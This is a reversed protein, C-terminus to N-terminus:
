NIYMSLFLGIFPSRQEAPYVHFPESFSPINIYGLVKDYGFINQLSCFLVAQKHFMTFPKSISIDFSSYAPISLKTPLGSENLYNYFRPSAWSYSTSLLIGISPFWYKDVISITHTSVYDPTLFDGPIITKRKSDIYSYSIWYDLNPITTKDRFFIEFGGAYGAYGPYNGYPLFDSILNKYNKYYMEFRLTRDNKQFQYNAIYHTAQQNDLGSTNYLMMEKDPLQYFIGYSLSVQSNKSFKYAFSSRPVITSQNSYSSRETRLGIRLAIRSNITAEAETFLSILYDNVDSKLSDIKGSLETSIYEGGAFLRINNSFTHKAVIKAQYINESESMDKGCYNYTSYNYSASAGLYISTKEDNFYQTYTSNIIYNLNKIDFNSQSIEQTDKYVTCLETTSINAYLKFIGNKNPKNRLVIKVDKNRPPKDWSTNKTIFKFYNNYPILNNYNLNVYLSTKQWRQTHFATAGYLHIGGGTLTSDAIGKSNLILISSLAQGYEASYGGASFITGSFLFPDSRGQQKFGPVNSYYPNPLIMGDMMYKSEKGSGGRVFLGETYGIKQTGPLKDITSQIDGPTGATTGIDRPKLLEAKNQDSAAFTGATIVVPTLPTDDEKLIFEINQNQNNLDIEKLCTQMGILSAGLIIKGKLRTTLAFKGSDNTATGEYTGQIFINAYILPNNNKDKTIGSINVQAIGHQLTTNFILFTFISLISSNIIRYAKKM